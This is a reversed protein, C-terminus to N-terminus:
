DIIPVTLLKWLQYEKHVTNDHVIYFKNAKVTAQKKLM